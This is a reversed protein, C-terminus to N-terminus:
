RPSRPVYSPPLARSTGATRGTRDSRGPRRCLRAPLTLRTADPARDRGDRGWRAAARRRRGARRGAARHRRGGDGCAAPPSGIRPPRHDAARDGPAGIFPLVYLVLLAPISSGPGPGSSSRRWASCSSCASTSRSRRRAGAPSSSAARRCSPSRSRPSRSSCSPGPCGRIIRTPQAALGGQPVIVEGSPPARHGLSRRAAAPDTREEGAPPGDEREEGGLRDHPDAETRDDRDQREVHAVVAHVRHREAEDDGRPRGRAEDRLREEAPQRVPRGADREHDDAEGDRGDRGDKGQHEDPRGREEEGAEDRPEARRHVVRRCPAEDDVRGVVGLVALREADVPRRLHAAEEDARRQAAETRGHEAEPEREDERGDGPEDGRRVDRERGVLRRTLVRGCPM